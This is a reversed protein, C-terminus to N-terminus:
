EKIDHLIDEKEIKDLWTEIQFMKGRISWMVIDSVSTFGHHGSLKALKLAM